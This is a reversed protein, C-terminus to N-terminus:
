GSHFLAEIRIDDPCTDESLRRYEKLALETEGSLVMADAFRLDAQPNAPEGALAYLDRQKASFTEGARIRPYAPVPKGWLIHDRVPDIFRSGVLPYEGYIFYNCRTLRDFTMLTAQFPDTSKYAEFGFTSCTPNFHCTPLDQDSIFFQYFRVAARGPLTTLRKLRLSHPTFTSDSHTDGYASLPQILILFIFFLVPRVLTEAQKDPEKYLKFSSM